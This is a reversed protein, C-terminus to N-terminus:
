MTPRCRQWCSSPKATRVKPWQLHSRHLLFCNIKANFAIGVRLCCIDSMKQLSDMATASYISYQVDACRAYSVNFIVGLTM